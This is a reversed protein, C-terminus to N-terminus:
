PKQGLASRLAGRLDEKEALGATPVGLEALAAKLEKVSMAEVAAAPAKSGQSAAGSADGQAAAEADALLAPPLAAVACPALCKCTMPRRLAALLGTRSSLEEVAATFAEVHPLADAEPLGSELARLLPEGGRNVADCFAALRAFALAITLNNDAFADVACSILCAGLLKHPPSARALRYLAAVELPASRPMAGIYSM